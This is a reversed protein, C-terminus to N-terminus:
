GGLEPSRVTRLDIVGDVAKECPECKELPAVASWSGEVRTAEIGCMTAGTTGAEPHMAHLPEGDAPELVTTSAVIQAPQWVVKTSVYM